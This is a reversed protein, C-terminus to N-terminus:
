GHYCFIIHALFRIHEHLIHDKRWIIEVPFQLDDQQNLIIFSTLAKKNCFQSRAKSSPEMTPSDETMETYAVGNYHNALTHDTEFETNISTTMAVSNGDKDVISFHSTGGGNLYGFHHM